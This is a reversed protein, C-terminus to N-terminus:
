ILRWKNKIFYRLLFSVPVVPSDLSYIKLASVLSCQYKTNHCKRKLYKNYRMMALFRSRIIDLTKQKTLSGEAETVCYINDECVKIKKALFGSKLSYMVDNSAICEDFLINYKKLFRVNFVKSWPVVFKYRIAEDGDKLYGKVLRAYPKHRTSKKGKYENTDVISTPSFYVIDVGDCCSECIENILIQQSGELFFDDSDAFLVWKTNCDVLGINRAVGAGKRKSKNYRFQIEPYDSELMLLEQLVLSDSKDDVVIVNFGVSRISRLVRKLGQINNFHPIILTISFNINKL